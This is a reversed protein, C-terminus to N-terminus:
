TQRRRPSPMTARTVVIHRAVGRGVAIKAGRAEVLLPGRFAAQSLVTVTDGEALGLCSLRRRLGAGADIEEIRVSDQNNADALTM